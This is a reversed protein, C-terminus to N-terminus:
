SSQMFVRWPVLESMARRMETTQCQVVLQSQSIRQIPDALKYYLRPSGKPPLLSVKM